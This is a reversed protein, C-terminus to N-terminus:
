SHRLAQAIPGWDAPLPAECVVETGLRPHVFALHAAHLAQHDLRKALTVLAHDADQGLTNVVRGGYVPDGFIPHGLEAMHVRIQHTRGTELGVDVLSLGFAQGVRRYHTIARRGESPSSCFRQRHQPHRRLLSDCTGMPSQLRGRLLAVYRKTVLREAFQRALHAHAADHKAIVLAGTTGADLRHVIGPRMVGGIGSLDQCHALLGHVLTPAHTGNGPHVVLHAPKNLVLVDQDEFLVDLNMPTPILSMAVPPPLTLTIYDESKLRLSAKADRDNVRCQGATIIQQLRARSMGALPPCHGSQALLSLYHDLRLPGDFGGVQWTLPTTM